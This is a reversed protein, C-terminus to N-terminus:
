PLDYTTDTAFDIQLAVCETPPDPHTTTQLQVPIDTYGNNSCETAQTASNSGYRGGCRHDTLFSLVELRYPSTTPPLYTFRAKASATGVPSTLTVTNSVAGEASRLRLEVKMRTFNLNTFQSCLRGQKSRLNLTTLPKIRVTFQGDSEFWAQSLGSAGHSTWYTTGTNRGSGSFIIPDLSYYCDTVASSGRAIGDCGTPTTGGGTDPIGDGNSDGPTLPNTIYNNTVKSGTSKEACGTFAVLMVLLFFPTHITIKKMMKKM